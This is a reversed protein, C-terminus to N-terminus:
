GPPHYVGWPRPGDSQQRFHTALIALPKTFRNYLFRAFACLATEKAGKRSYKQWPNCPNERILYTHIWTIPPKLEQVKFKKLNRITIKGLEKLM